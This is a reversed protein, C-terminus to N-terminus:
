FWSEGLARRITRDLQKRSKRIIADNREYQGQYASRWLFANVYKESLAHSEDSNPDLKKQMKEIINM